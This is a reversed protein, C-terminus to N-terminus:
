DFALGSIEGNRVIVRKQLLGKIDLSLETREAEFLNRLPSQPNAVQLGRLEVRGDWLSTEVAALDVRAGTASQGASVIMMHLLPDLGFRVGAAVVILLALRPLVYKWRLANLYKSKLTGDGMTFG